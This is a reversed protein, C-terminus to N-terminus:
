GELIDEKWVTRGGLAARFSWVASALVTGLAVFAAGSYWASFDSTVSFTDMMVAVFVAAALPLVGFRLLVWIGSAFVL